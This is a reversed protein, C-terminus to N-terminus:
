CFTAWGYSQQGKIKLNRHSVGLGTSDPIKTLLLCDYPPRSKASLNRRRYGVTFWILSPLIFVRGACGGLPSKLLYGM